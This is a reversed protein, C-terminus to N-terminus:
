QNPRRQKERYAQMLGNSMEIYTQEPIITKVQDLKAMVFAIPCTPGRISDLYSRVADGRQLIRALQDDGFMPCGNEHAYQLCELHGGFAAAACTDEDWPCGNEHLYKLCELHGRGAALMCEDKNWPCGNEHVSRLRTLDGARAAEICALYQFGPCPAALTQLISDMARLDMARARQSRTLVGSPLLDVAHPGAAVM